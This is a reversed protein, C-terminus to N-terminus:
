LPTPSYHLHAPDGTPKTFTIVAASFELTGYGHWAQFVTKKMNQGKYDEKGGRRPHERYKPPPHHLYKKPSFM